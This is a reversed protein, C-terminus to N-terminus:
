LSESTELRTLISATAKTREELRRMFAQIGDIGYDDGRRVTRWFAAPELDLKERIIRADEATLRELFERRNLQMALTVLRRNKRLVRRFTDRFQWRQRVKSSAKLQYTIRMPYLFDDPRLAEIKLFEGWGSKGRRMSIAEAITGLVIAHEFEVRLPPNDRITEERWLSCLKPDSRYEQISQNHNAADLFQQRFPSCSFIAEDSRIM